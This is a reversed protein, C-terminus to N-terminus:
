QSRRPPTQMTGGHPSAPARPVGGSPAMGTDAGIARMMEADHVFTTTLRHPGRATAATLSDWGSLPAWDAYALPVLSTRGQGHGVTPPLYALLRIASVTTDRDREEAVLGEIIRQASDQGHRLPVAASLTVRVVGPSVDERRRGFVRHGAPAAPDDALSDRSLTAASGPGEVRCGALLALAVLWSVRSPM